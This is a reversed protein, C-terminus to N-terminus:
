SDAEADDDEVEEDLDNDPGAVADVLLDFSEAVADQADTFRGAAHAFPEGMQSNLCTQRMEEKAKGLSIIAEDLHDFFQQLMPDMDM